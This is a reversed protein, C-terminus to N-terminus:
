QFLIFEFHTFTNDTNIFKFISSLYNSNLSTLVKKMIFADLLPQIEFNSRGFFPFFILCLLTWKTIRLDNTSTILFWINLVLYTVKWFSFFLTISTMFHFLHSPQRIEIQSLKFAVSTILLNFNFISKNM